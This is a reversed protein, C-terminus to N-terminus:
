VYSALLQVNFQYEAAPFFHVLGPLFNPINGRMMERLMPM